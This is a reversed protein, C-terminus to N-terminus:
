LKIELVFHHERKEEPPLKMYDGYLRTLAWDYDKIVSLSTDEFQLKTTTCYKDRPFIEKFYHKIGTPCVVYESSDNKYISNWWKFRKAWTKVSNFALIKGYFAKKKIASIVEDGSDVYIDLLKKENASFRRCSLCLGLLLSGFGHMKRLLANNPANELVFIDIYVGSDDCDPSTYSRLLTGKVMMQTIPMGLEPTIEPAHLYYRDGLEKQFVKLFEDYDSRTMFVDIDDDWPIFGKHRVAGLATGGCLSYYYGYKDCVSSFDKLTELLIAQMKTLLEGSVEVRNKTYANKLLSYTSLGMIDVGM